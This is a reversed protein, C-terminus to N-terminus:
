PFKGQKAFTSDRIQEQHSSQLAQTINRDSVHVFYLVFFVSAVTGPHSSGGFRTRVAIAYASQLIM